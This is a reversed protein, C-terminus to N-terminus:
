LAEVKQEALEWAREALTARRKTTALKLIKKM